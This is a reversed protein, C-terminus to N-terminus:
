YSMATVQQDCLCEKAAKRLAYRSNWAYIGTDNDNSPTMNIWQPENDGTQVYSYYHYKTNM